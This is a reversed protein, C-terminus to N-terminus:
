DPKHFMVEMVDYHKTTMGLRTYTKQAANNDREVYLRIGAVGQERALQEVHHYIATFVGKGRHATDVYVSQIWWFVGNRWDSWAYNLRRSVIGPNASRM